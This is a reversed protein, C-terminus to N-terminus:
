CIPEGFPDLLLVGIKLANFLVRFQEESQRIVNETEKQGTIDEILLTFGQEGTNLITPIIKIDFYKVKGNITRKHEFTTSKKDIADQIM